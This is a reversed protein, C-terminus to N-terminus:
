KVLAFARFNPRERSFTGHSKRISLNHPWSPFGFFSDNTRKKKGIKKEYKEIKRNKKVLGNDLDSYDSREAVRPHQYHQM